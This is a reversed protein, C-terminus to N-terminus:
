DHLRRRGLAALVLDPRDSGIGDVGADIMSQIATPTNVTWVSVLLHEAHIAQVLDRTVLEYYLSLLRVHASRAVYALDVPTGLLLVGADLTPVRDVLEKIVQHHFSIPVIREIFAPNQRLLQLLGQLVEKAKIEVVVPIRIHDLLEALTPVGEGNGVNVRQLEAATMDSVRTTQGGTRELTADHIVMLQGDQSTHVDCEVMDVGLKESQQFAQLTNEPFLDGGGRHAIVRM